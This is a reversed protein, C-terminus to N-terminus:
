MSSSSESYMIRWFSDTGSCSSKVIAPSSTSSTGLPAVSASVDYHYSSIPLSRLASEPATAQPARPTSPTAERVHLPPIPGRFRVLHRTLRARDAKQSISRPGDRTIFNLSERALVEVEQFQVRSMRTQAQLLGASVPGNANSAVITCESLFDFFPNKPDPDTRM